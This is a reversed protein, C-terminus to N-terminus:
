ADFEAMVRRAAMRLDLKAVSVFEPKARIRHQDRDHSIYWHGRDIVWDVVSLDNVIIARTMDCLRGLAKEVAGTRFKADLIYPPIEGSGGQPMHRDLSDRLPSKDAMDAYLRYRHLGVFESPTFVGDAFLCELMRVRKYRPKGVQGAKTEREEIYVGREMQEPTPPVPPDIDVQKQKRAKRAMVSGGLRQPRVLRYRQWDSPRRFVDPRDHAAEM